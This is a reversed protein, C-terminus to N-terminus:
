LWDGAVSMGAVFVAGLTIVETLAMLSAAFWRLGRMRWIWFACSALSCYLVVDLYRSASRNAPHTVTPNTMPNAWLVGIAIALGFFLLHTIVLWYHPRWLRTKFPQQKIGAWVLSAFALLLLICVPPVLVFELAWISFRLATHVSEM